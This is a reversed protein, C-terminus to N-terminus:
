NGKKRTLAEYIAPNDLLTDLKVDDIKKNRRSDKKKTM